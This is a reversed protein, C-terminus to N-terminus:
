KDASIAFRQHLKPPFFLTLAFTWIKMLTIHGTQEWSLPQNCTFYGWASSKSGGWQQTSTFVSMTLARWGFTIDSILPQFNKRCSREYKTLSLSLIAASGSYMLRPLCWCSCCGRKNSGQAQFCQTTRWKMELFRVRRGALITEM